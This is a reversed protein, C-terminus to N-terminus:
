GSLPPQVPLVAGRADSPQESGPLASPSSSFVGLIGAKLKQFPTLVTRATLAVPGRRVVEHGIARYLSAAVRIAIRARWPLHVTGALGREYRSEALQVIDVVVRMLREPDARGKVIDRATIGAQELRTTPLYVRDRAADEGVDRAINTLQMALGLDVAARQAALSRAGLISTMMLGVTGAVGYAYALLARDDAIRVQGVDTAVAEVLSVSAHRPVEHEAEVELWRRVSSRPPRNGVLEDLFARIDRFATGPNPAEDVLDDAERCFRYCTAAAQAEAAPLFWYAITFSRGHRQLVRFADADDQAAEAAETAEVSTSSAGAGTRSM